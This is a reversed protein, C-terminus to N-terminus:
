QVRKLRDLDLVRITHGVSELVGEREFTKLARVAAEITVGSLQALEKRRITLEWEGAASGAGGADAEQGSHLELLAAAIRARASEYAVLTALQEAHGLSSGLAKLVFGRVEESEAIMRRFVAASIYRLECNELAVGSAVYPEGALVSRHGVIEGPGVIRTTLMKGKGTRRFVKVRGRCVTWVGHPPEGSHFLYQGKARHVPTSRQGVGKAPVHVRGPVGPPEAHCVMCWHGRSGPTTAATSHAIRSSGSVCVTVVASPRARVRFAFRKM